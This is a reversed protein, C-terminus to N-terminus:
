VADEPSMSEIFVLTENRNGWIKTVRVDAIQSDDLWAIRNLSDGIQKALNDGDPKQTHPRWITAAAKRANWSKPVAFVARVDLRVPGEIPAPFHPLAIVQVVDTHATMAPDNFRIKGNSRARRWAFPKGPITFQVKM